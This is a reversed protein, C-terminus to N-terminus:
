GPHISKPCCRFPYLGVRKEKDWFKTINQEVDKAVDITQKVRENVDPEIQNLSSTDIGM